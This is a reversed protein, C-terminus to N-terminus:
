YIEDLNFFLITLKFDTDIKKKKKKALNFDTDLQISSPM